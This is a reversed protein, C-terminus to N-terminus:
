AIPDVDIISNSLTLIAYGFDLVLVSKSAMIIKDKCVLALLHVIHRVWVRLEFCPPYKVLHVRPFM